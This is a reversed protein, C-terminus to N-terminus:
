GVPKGELPRCPLVGNGACRTQLEVGIRKPLRRAPGMVVSAGVGTAAECM